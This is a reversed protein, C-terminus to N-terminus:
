SQERISSVSTTRHVVQSAIPFTAALLGFVLLSGERTEFPWQFVTLAVIFQSFLFAGAGVAVLDSYADGARRKWLSRFLLAYLFFYLLVGALGFKIWVTLPGNHVTGASGRWAVTREGVWEVGVGLGFVPSARVVDLGDRIDDVHGENTAALANTASSKRTDLSAFRESWPLSSWTAALTGICAILVVLVGILYRRRARLSIVVFVAFVIVLEIWAFRRFALLTVGAGAGIGIVWLLKSRGARLMALSVAVAAVIYELTAHDALPTRGYFSVEGGGRAYDFLQFAGYAGVIAVFLQAFRLSDGDDRIVASWLALGFLAGVFLNRWDGFPNSSGHYLGVTVGIAIVTAVALTVYTVRRSVEGRHRALRSLIAAVAFCIVALDAPAFGAIANQQFWSVEALAGTERLALRDSPDLRSHYILNAALIAGTAVWWALRSVDVRRGAPAVAEVRRVEFPSASAAETM